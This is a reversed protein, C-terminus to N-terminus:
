KEKIADVEISENMNKKNIKLKPYEKELRAIEIDCNKEYNAKGFKKARKKEFLWSKYYDAIKKDIM